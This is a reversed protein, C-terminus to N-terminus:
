INWHAIDKKQMYDLAKLADKAIRMLENEFFYQIRKKRTELVDQLSTELYDFYFCSNKYDQTQKM